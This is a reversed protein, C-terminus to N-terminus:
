LGGGGVRTVELTPSRLWRAWWPGDPWRITIRYTAGEGHVCVEAPHQHWIILKM